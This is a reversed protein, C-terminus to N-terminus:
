EHSISVRSAWRLPCDVSLYLSPYTPPKDKPTGEFRAVFLWWSGVFVSGHLASCYTINRRNVM